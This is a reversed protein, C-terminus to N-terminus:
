PPGLISYASFFNDLTTLRCINTEFVGREYYFTDRALKAQQRNSTRSLYNHQRPTCCYVPVCRCYYACTPLRRLLPAVVVVVAMMVPVAM